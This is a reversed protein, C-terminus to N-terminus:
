DHEQQCAEAARQDLRSWELRTHPLAIACPWKSPPTLVAYVVMRHNLEYLCAVNYSVFQLKPRQTQLLDQKCDLARKRDSGSENVWIARPRTTAQWTNSNYLYQQEQKHNPLSKVQLPM